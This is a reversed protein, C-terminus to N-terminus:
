PARGARRRRFANTVLGPPVEAELGAQVLGCATRKTLDTHRWATQRRCRRPQARRSRLMCLKAPSTSLIRECNVRRL